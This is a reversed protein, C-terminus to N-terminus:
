ETVVTLSPSSSNGSNKCHLDFDYNDAGGVKVVRTGSGAVSGTWGGGASCSTANASQWTLITSAGSRVTTPSGKLSSAVTNKLHYSAHTAQASMEFELSVNNTHGAITPVPLYRAGAWRDMDVNVNTFVMDVNADSTASGVAGAITSDATDVLQVTDFTIHSYGSDPFRIGPPYLSHIFTSDFAAYVNSVTLNDSSLVDMFGDPRTSGYHDVSCDSCGLKLSLAYGSSTDNGGKDRAVGYRPGADLVGDIRINTNYLGPDSGIPHNLYFLHPPPFWKRIGGVNKGNADQLDAYRRSTINEFLVNKANGQWGMLTGDLTIDSFTLNHPVQMHQPGTSTKANVTQNSKWNQSLSIAMPIFSHAGASAPVTLKLGSFVINASDGTIFFVAAPNVGGVWASQVWGSSEDFKISRHTELWPTLVVDNFAGAPQTNGGKSVFKGEFIYGGFDPNIPVSGLWVVVWNTLTINSSNAIVFAPHFMNDVVFKGKGSFEVTTENDIFIGRDIATTSHLFVPCDVELTFANNKAAAFAKIAGTTDDTTGTCSVWERISRKTSTAAVSDHTGASTLLAILPISALLFRPLRFSFSYSM